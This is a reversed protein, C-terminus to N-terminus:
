TAARYRVINDCSDDNRGKHHVALVAHIKHVRSSVPDGALHGCLSVGWADVGVHIKDGAQWKWGIRCERAYYQVMVQFLQDFLGLKQWIQFREHLVCNSAQFWTRDIHKEIRFSIRIM